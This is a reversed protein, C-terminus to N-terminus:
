RASPLKIQQGPRVVSSSWLNNLSRIQAVTTGHRRAVDWLTDGARIEYSATRADANRAAQEDSSRALSASRMVTPEQRERERVRMADPYVAVHFHAPHFEETAEIVGTDELDVLANRLWRLCSRGRPKRLDVAMGTPHVSREVSNRPQRTSPRTASTVVLREGCADHYRAAFGEVWQATTELAFPFSVRALEMHRGSSLRVFTGRNAATRVGQSTRYFDLENEVARTYMRDVSERSGRLSQASAAPPCVFAAVSAVLVSVLVSRHMSAVPRRLAPCHHKRIM